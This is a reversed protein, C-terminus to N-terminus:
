ENGRRIDRRASSQWLLGDKKLQIKEAAEAEGTTAKRGLLDTKALISRPPLNSTHSNFGFRRVLPGVIAKLVMILSGTLITAIFALFIGIGLAPLINIMLYTLSDWGQRSTFADLVVFIPPIFFGLIAGIEAPYNHGEGRSRRWRLAFALVAFVVALAIGSFFPQFIPLLRGSLSPAERYFNAVGCGLGLLFSFIVWSWPSEARKRLNPLAKHTLWHIQERRPAENLEESISHALEPQLRAPAPTDCCPCHLVEDNVHAACYRCMWM